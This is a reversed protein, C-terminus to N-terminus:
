NTCVVYQFYEWGAVYKESHKEEVMNENLKQMLYTVYYQAIKSDCGKIQRNQKRKTECGNSSLLHCAMM